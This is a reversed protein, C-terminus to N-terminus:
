EHNEGQRHHRPDSNFKIVSNIPSIGVQRPEVQTEEAGRAELIVNMAADRLTMRNRVGHTALETLRQAVVNQSRYILDLSLSPDSSLAAMAEDYADFLLRNTDADFGSFRM